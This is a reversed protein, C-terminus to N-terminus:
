LGSRNLKGHKKWENLILYAHISCDVKAEIVKELVEQAVDPAFELADTAVCVMVELDGATLLPLLARQADVGRRRLEKSFLNVRAYAKNAERTNHVATASGHSKAAKQYGDVLEEVTLKKLDRTNM